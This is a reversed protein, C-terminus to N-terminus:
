LEAVKVKIKKAFSVQGRPDNDTVTILYQGEAGPAQYFLNVEGYEDTVFNSGTITGGNPFLTLHHGGLPNNGRDKIVVTFPTLTGPEVEPEIDVSSNKVYTGTTLFLTTFGSNVGGMGGARVSVYSIAGIGDDPSAPSYDKKLQAATYKTTFVSAHCGDVTAGNGISGFQTEFDVPTNSVVFNHNIDYVCVAINGKEDGQAYLTSPYEVIDIYVPPGSSLFMSSDKVTGGATEAYVWVRGNVHTCSWWYVAAMGEHVGGLGAIGTMSYGDICGESCWFYVATSDPVANSYVDCVVAVVQNQINVFEWSAQNCDVAGLKITYPPGANIAFPTAASIVSGSSARVRVTGSVTGSYVTVAAQGDSNTTVEVPGYGQGQINEGGNPGSAITFAIPIGEPVTNGFEDYATALLGGFEIEGVGKVRLDEFDTRLTISAVTTNPNLKASVEAYSYGEDDIITARIYVTTAQNGAKYYVSAAGSSTTVSTPISGIPDWEGNANVDYILSDVGDSFYGDHDRDAFREGACLYITTGDEVSSGDEKAATILVNASDANNATLLVPTVSVSVRGSGSANDSIVMSATLTTSNVTAQLTATGSATATFVSAVTGDAATTDSAPTFYGLSSPSVSFTVRMGSLAVGTADVVKAEVIATSGREMESTPSSAVYEFQASASGSVADDGCGAILAIGLLAIAALGIWTFRNSFLVSMKVASEKEQSKGSKQM